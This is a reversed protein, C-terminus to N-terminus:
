QAEAKQLVFLHLLVHGETLEGGVNALSDVVVLLVTVLALHKILLANQLFEVLGQSLDSATEYAQFAM